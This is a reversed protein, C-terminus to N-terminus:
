TNSLSLALTCLHQLTTWLSPSTIEGSFLSGWASSSGMVELDNSADFASVYDGGLSGSLMSELLEYKSDNTCSNGINM